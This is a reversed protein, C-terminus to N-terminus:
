AIVLVPAKPPGGRVYWGPMTLAARVNVDFGLKKKLEKKLWAANSLV